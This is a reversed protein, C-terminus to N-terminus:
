PAAGRAGTPVMFYSSEDGSHVRNPRVVALPGHSGQQLKWDRSPTMRKKGTGERGGDTWWWVVM